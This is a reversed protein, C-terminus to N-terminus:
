AAAEPEGAMWWNIIEAVERDLRRQNEREIARDTERILAAMRLTQPDRPNPETM